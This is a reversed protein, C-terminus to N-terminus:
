LVGDTDIKIKLLVGDKVNSLIDSWKQRLARIDEKEGIAWFCGGGGAGTFRAGCNGGAAAEFLRDGTEDLVHPTMEKRIRTEQNMYRAAAKMDLKEFAEAFSRTLRIIEQWRKRDYGRIFRKVWIGNVDKSVHPVGCYAVLLRDRIQEPSLADFLSHAMFGRTSPDANWTWLNVGGFAAALQDQLGCPVGAVSQEIAHALFVIDSKDERSGNYKGFVKYFAAVLAVAAASSGGLASRPPSDSQIRIRVGKAGFYEAVAFMLGLPHDFPADGGKFEASEFGRSSVRVLENKYPQLFVHTRLDIAMNFTCPFYRKLPYHFTSIDLTGGMDIRCPSSAEVPEFKQINRFDNVM